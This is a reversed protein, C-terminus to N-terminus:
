LTPLQTCGTSHMVRALRSSLLAQASALTSIQVCCVSTCVSSRQRGCRPEHRCRGHLRRQVLQLFFASDPLGLRLARPATSPPIIPARTGIVGEAHRQLGTPNHRIRLREPGDRSKLRREPM